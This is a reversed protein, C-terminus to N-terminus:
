VISSELINQTVPILHAAGPCKSIVNRIGVPQAVRFLQDSADMAFMSVPLQPVIRAVQKAAEVGNM